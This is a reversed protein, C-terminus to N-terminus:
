NSKFTYSYGIQLAGYPHQLGRIFFNWYIKPRVWFAHPSNEPAYGLGFTASPSLGWNIGDKYRFIAGSVTDNYWMNELTFVTGTVGIGVSQELYLGSSMKKRFGKHVELFMSNYEPGKFFGLNTRLPSSFDPSFISEYEFGIVAGPQSIHNGFYGAEFSLRHQAHGWFPCTLLLTIALLFPFKLM